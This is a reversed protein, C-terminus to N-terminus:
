SISVLCVVAMAALFAEATRRGKGPAWMDEEGELMLLKPPMQPETFRSRVQSRARYAPYVAAPLDNYHTGFGEDVEVDDIPM